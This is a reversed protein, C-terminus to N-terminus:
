NLRQAAKLEQKNKYYQEPTLGSMEAIEAEEASLRVTGQRQGNTGVNRTVPASAPPRQRVPAAASSLPSDTDVEVDNPRPAAQGMGLRGEVFQFYEPTDAAIGEDLADGHARVMRRQLRQDTVAQPHARVWAASPGSLGAAFQEVPDSHQQVPAPAKKAQEIRQELAQKGTTLQLLRAANNSMGEQAEAAADYDGAAMASRFNAKYVAQEQNVSSIATTVLQLNADEAALAHGRTDTQAQFARKEAEVRGQRETERGQKEAELQQKLIAVSDEIQDAANTEPAAVVTADPAAIASEVVEPEDVEPKTVKEAM